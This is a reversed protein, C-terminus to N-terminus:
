AREEPAIVFCAGKQAADLRIALGHREAIAKVLALGLGHGKGSATDTGRRFREFISDHLAPPIGPGDDSVTIRPGDQLELRLHGGAPVYKFANDLLNTVMRALQMPEGRFHVDPAIALDLRLGAEEASDAYLAGINTLMASLDVPEMGLPDGRRAESAAIDLLSDLMTVLGRIDERARSLTEGDGGPQLQGLAKVLRSDLHMLPTRIEHAVHDTVHRYTTALAEIRDLARLAHGTLEGIEDDPLCASSRITALKAPARFAHNIREVRRALKRATMAAWLGLGVLLVLATGAFVLALQRQLAAELPYERAVVLDIGPGLRTARAYVAVARAGEGVAVTVYGNESLGAGLDPWRALDGALRKGDGDALMYHSTRGELSAMALRDDIRRVLEGQGSSAYIDVLGALDSDVANMLARENAQSVTVHTVAYLTVMALLMAALAGLMLRTALSNRRM